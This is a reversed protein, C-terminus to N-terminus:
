LFTNKVVWELFLDAARFVAAPKEPEVGGEAVGGVGEPIGSFFPLNIQCFNISRLVGFVESGTRKAFLLM